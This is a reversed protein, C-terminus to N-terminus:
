SGRTRTHAQPQTGTAFRTTTTAQGGDAAQTQQREAQDHIAIGAWSALLLALAAWAMYLRGELYRGRQGGM